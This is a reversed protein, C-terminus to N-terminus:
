TGGTRSRTVIDEPRTKSPGPGSAEVAGVTPAESKSLRVCVLASDVHRAAQALLTQAVDDVDVRSWAALVRQLSTLHQEMLQLPTVGLLTALEDFHERSRGTPPSPKAPSQTVYRGGQICDFVPSM